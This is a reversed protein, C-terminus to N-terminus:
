MEVQLESPLRCGRAESTSLPRHGTVRQPRQWRMSAMASPRCQVKTANAGNTGCKWYQSVRPPSQWQATKQREDWASRAIGTAKVTNANYVIKAV